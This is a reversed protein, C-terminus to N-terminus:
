FVCCDLFDVPVPVPERILSPLTEYTARWDRSQGYLANWHSDNECGGNRAVLIPRSDAFSSLISAYSRRSRSRNILESQSRVATSGRVVGRKIPTCHAIRTGQPIVVEASPKLHVAVV